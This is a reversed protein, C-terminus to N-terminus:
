IEALPINVSDMISAGAHRLPHFRFYRVGAKQCLSKMFKKRDKYPGCIIKGERKSFYRHWFVWPMQPNRKKCINFLVSYLTNTMPIIRPTKTGNRKKRTYLTVTRQEFDIDDWTLNNIERSRALTDRICWLYDRQEPNAVAFVKEIDENPPVYVKKKEVRMMDVRNAPNDIIYCKKMGWNFLSRLYRLEKNATQNSIRSREDRLETILQITIDSCSLGSWRTAWRRAHYVTDMYHEYSLRQKVEDLRRNVLTLFDMDTSILTNLESRKRQEAGKAERKTKYYAQTYREGKMM